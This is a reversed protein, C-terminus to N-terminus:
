QMAFFHLVLYALVGVGIGVGIAIPLLVWSLGKQKKRRPIRATAGQKVLPAQGPQAGAAVVPVKPKLPRPAPLPDAVLPTSTLTNTIEERVGITEISPKPRDMSAPMTGEPWQQEPSRMTSPESNTRIKLDGPNLSRREFATGPAPSWGVSAKRDDPLLQLVRTLEDRLDRASQQRQAPWKELATLIVKELEPHLGPMYTTPPPPPERVQKMAIEFPHEGTFPVRGTLLQYLLIGCSYVDSRADIPSARCQEPSMYQPTGVIVGVTTLV